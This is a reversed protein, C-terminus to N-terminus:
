RGSFVGHVRIDDASAPVVASGFISLGLLAAIVITKMAIVGTSLTSTTRKKNRDRPKGNDAAELSQYRSSADRNTFIFSTTDYEILQSSPTHLMECKAM